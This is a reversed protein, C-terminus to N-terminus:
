RAPFQQSDIALKAARVADKSEGSVKGTEFRLGKVSEQPPYIEWQWVSNGVNAVAYCVGRYVSTTNPNHM